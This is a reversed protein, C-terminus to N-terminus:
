GPAPPPGAPISWDPIEKLARIPRQLPTGLDVFQNGASSFWFARRETTDIVIHAPCSGFQQGANFVWTSGIQDVWSGDPVFPSQHVHGSLVMDPRYLDIWERLEVDGFYRDGSWSTPSKAPPAHHLWIWHGGRKSSAEALQLAIAAKVIPGDWWPCASFLTDDVLISEGDSLVGTHQAGSLWKAVKEGTEDKLM